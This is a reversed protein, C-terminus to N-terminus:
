GNIERTKIEQVKMENDKIEQVMSRLQERWHCPTLGTAEWTGTKDLVSFAPRRAPTPYADTPIPTVPIKKELLGQALAEEQIAVAFDYWSAVGADTWHFVGALNKEVAAWVAEALGKAWCPTGIQDDIITLAPKERMLRIMTHVFNAGHSSYLWATRITLAEDGLIKAVAKEGDLKTQGYVSQPAPVDETKYPRSAEGSFIFDTSIHVLRAGAGSVARALNAAGDCNIAHAAERDSEAGDVNTYAACNVVWDPKERDMVAAISEPKTIDIDPVDVASIDYGKPVTRQLEWGLQGNGGVILVKM